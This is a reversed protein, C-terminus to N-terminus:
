HWIWAAILCAGLGWVLLFRLAHRPLPKEGLLLTIDTMEPQTNTQEAPLEPREFRTRWSPLPEETARCPCRDWSALDIPEHCAGCTYAHPRPITPVLLDFRLM